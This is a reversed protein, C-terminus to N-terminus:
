RQSLKSESGLLLELKSTASLYNPDIELTRQYHKIAEPRDNLALYCEGLFFMADALDKKHGLAKRFEHIAKRYEKRQFQLIGLHHYFYANSGATRAAVEFEKVAEEIRGLSYYASGLNSHAEAFQADVAIARRYEEIAAQVNGRRKHAVGLNNRARPFDPDVELAMQYMKMEEELPDFDGRRETFYGYLFGQNNYYNAIAELDDIVKYGGYEREPTRTFDIMMLQPGYYVGGTIHGNNVIVEAEKSIREITVVDVYVAKLGVHRAMGVFLNTYALCNGKGSVFVERATKNSKSDYAISFKTKSLIARVLANAKERDSRLGETTSEAFRRIEDDIEFPIVVRDLISPEVRPELADIIEAKTYVTKLVPACAAGGIAFAALTVFL